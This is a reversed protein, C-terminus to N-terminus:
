KNDHEAYNASNYGYWSAIQYDIDDMNLRFPRKAM